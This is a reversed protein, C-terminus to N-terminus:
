SCHTVVAAYELVDTFGGVAPIAEAASPLGAEEAM